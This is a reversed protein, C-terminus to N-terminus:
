QRTDVRERASAIVTDLVRVIDSCRGSWDEPKIYRRRDLSLEVDLIARALEFLEDRASVAAASDDLWDLNLALLGDSFCSLLAKPGVAPEKVSFSGSRAGSGWTFEYGRQEVTDLLSEVAAFVQGDLKERADALFSTRDWSRRSSSSAAVATAKAARAEETYGFLVPVAVLTGGSRFQQCEVLLVETDSMQRNLFEVVSRLEMPAEELFFVIRLRGERLNTQVLDFFREVDDEAEPGLAAIEQEVSSGRARATADTLARLEGADWYHAGNAAYEIMQAVVERRSRTDLFRKCEVFTPVSLHDVFLFDISWQDQATRPNPVPMERKVLLWRCGTEPRIQDGPLLDHNQELLQQLERDENRCHVREMEESGGDAHVVYAKTM